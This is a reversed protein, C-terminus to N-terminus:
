NETVLLGNKISANILLGALSPWKELIFDIEGYFDLANSFVSPPYLMLRVEKETKQKSSVYQM